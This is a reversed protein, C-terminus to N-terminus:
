ILGAHLALSTLDARRRCGTKDRIRGLRSSVTRVSVSLQAAIQADTRGQAVLTVLERERADLQAPGPDPAATPREPATLLQVYEAATATSMATGRQEAADAEAPGLAARLERESELRRDADPGDLFGERRAFAAHAAWTTLAEVPRGTQACLEACHYSINILEFWIGTRMTIQLSERLGAAAGDTRGARLDLNATLTLLSGLVRLDGANRSQTLATACIREAAALDGTEILVAVLLNDNARALWGPLDGPIQEVQRVLELAADHDGGNMAAIALNGLALAEGAPHGLARAMALARRTEEAAEALRGRTAFVISRGCLSDALARSPGQGEVADRVTTFHGLAGTLDAAHLATQGRWLQAECWTESGTEAHGAAECLLADEGVARGRLLWWSALAVALRPAITHDHEMAWALAQRTTADEADLWELAALEATTTQLGAAAEEAV